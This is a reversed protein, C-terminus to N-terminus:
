ILGPARRTLHRARARPRLVLAAAPPRRPRAAPAPGPHLDASRVRAPALLVPAEDASTRRSRRRARWASRRAPAGRRARGQPLPRAPDRPAAPLEDLGARDGRADRAHRRGLRADRGAHQGSWGASRARQSLTSGQPSVHDFFGQRVMAASYRRAARALRRDHGLAGLGSAARQQNVLCEVARTYSAAAVSGPQAQDGACALASVVPLALFAVVALCVVTLGKTM